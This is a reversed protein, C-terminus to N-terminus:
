VLIYGAYRGFFTSNFLTVDIAKSHIQKLKVTSTLIMFLIIHSYTFSNFKTEILQIVITM